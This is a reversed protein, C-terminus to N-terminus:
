MFWVRIKIPNGRFVTNELRFKGINAGMQEGDSALFFTVSFKMNERTPSKVELKYMEEVNNISIHYIKDIQGLEIKKCVTGLANHVESYSLSNITNEAYDKLISILNEREDDLETVELMKLCACDWPSIGLDDCTRSRPAIEGILNISYISKDEIGAIFLATKRYDVKSVLRKTNESLCHYSNDFQNLLSKSAIIYLMPLKQEQYAYIEKYWNGYRMGHDGNFFILIDYFEEYNKLLNELYEKIDENLTAAHQGSGEHGANIHLYMMLNVGKNWEILTKTYNLIYYHSM